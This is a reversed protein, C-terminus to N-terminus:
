AHKSFTRSDSTTTRGLSASQCVHTSTRLWRKGSQTRQGRCFSRAADPKMPLSKRSNDLIAARSIKSTTRPVCLAALEGPLLWPSGHISSFATWNQYTGPKNPLIIIFNSTHIYIYIIYYYIMCICLDNNIDNMLLLIYSLVIIYYIIIFIYYIHICIYIIDSTKIACLWGSCILVVVSPISPIEKGQEPSPKTGQAM